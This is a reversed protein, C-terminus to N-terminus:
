LIAPVVPEALLRLAGEPAPHKRVILVIISPYSIELRLAGEPAPHKRVSDVPSSFIVGSPRLAGEPAPHKRVPARIIFVM